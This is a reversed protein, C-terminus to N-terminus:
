KSKNLQEDEERDIDKIQVGRSQLTKEIQEIENIVRNYALATQELVNLLDDAVDLRDVYRVALDETNTNDM